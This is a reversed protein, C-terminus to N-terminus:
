GSVMRIWWATILDGFYLAIYGGLVLFPGFAITDKRGIKKFALLIAAASGGIVFAFFLAVVVGPFGTILGLFVALKVDGLGMAGPALNGILYLIGFGILGGILFDTWNELHLIPIMILSLVIAPYVVLNPILKHELDIFAICLLFASYISVIVATWGPGFYLWAALFLLGSLAEILLIRPPIKEKCYRCRGWLFLYSFIPILDFIKLRQKCQPCASPPQVLSQQRPIRDIVVNLFSGIVCGLVLYMWAQYTM